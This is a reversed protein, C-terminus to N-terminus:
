YVKISTFMDLSYTFIYTIDIAALARGKLATVPRRGAVPVESLPPWVHQCPSLLLLILLLSSLNGVDVGTRQQDGSYEWRSPRTWSLSGPASVVPGKPVRIIEVNQRRRRYRLAWPPAHERRYAAASAPASPGMGSAM